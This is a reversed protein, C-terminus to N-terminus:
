IVFWIYDYVLTKLLGVDVSKTLDISEEYIQHQKEKKENLVNLLIWYLFYRSINLQRYCNGIKGILYSL